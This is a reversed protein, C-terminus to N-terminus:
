QQTIQSKNFAPGKNLSTLDINKSTSPWPEYNQETGKKEGKLGLNVLLRKCADQAKIKMLVETRPESVPKAGAVLLEEYQNDCSTGLISRTKWLISVGPTGLRRVSRYRHIAKQCADQPPKFDIAANSEIEPVARFFPRPEFRIPAQENSGTGSKVRQRHDHTGDVSAFM